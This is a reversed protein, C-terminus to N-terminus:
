DLRFKLIYNDTIKKKLSYITVKIKKLEKNAM